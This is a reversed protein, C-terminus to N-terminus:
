STKRRTELRYKMRTLGSAWLASWESTWRDYIVQIPVPNLYLRRSRGDRESRILKAEELVALHKMVGIRTMAFRMAVDNVNCGPRAKVIDLMRRRNADALAGFLQDM